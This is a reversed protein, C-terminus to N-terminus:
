KIEIGERHQELMSGRLKCRLSCSKCNRSASISRRCNRKKKLIRVQKVEAINLKYQFQVFDAISNQLKMNLLLMICNRKTDAVNAADENSM